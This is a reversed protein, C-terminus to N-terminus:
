TYSQRRTEAAKIAGKKRNEQITNLHDLWMKIEEVSLMVRKSLESYTSESPPFSQLAEKLVASPPNSLPTLNANLWTEHFAWLLFGQM